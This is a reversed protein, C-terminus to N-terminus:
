NGPRMRSVTLIVDGCVRRDLMGMEGVRLNEYLRTVGVFTISIVPVGLTKESFACLPLVELRWKQPSQPDYAIGVRHQLIM